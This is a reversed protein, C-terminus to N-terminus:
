RSITSNGSAGGQAGISVGPITVTGGTSVGGADRTNGRNIEENNVGANGGANSGSGASNNGTPNNVGVGTGGGAGINASQSHALSAACVLALTILAAKM